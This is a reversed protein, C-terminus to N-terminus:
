PSFMKKYVFRLVKEWDCILAFSYVFFIVFFAVSLAASACRWYIDMYRKIRTNVAVGFFCCEGGGDGARSPSPNPQKIRTLNNEESKRAKKYKKGKLPLSHSIYM